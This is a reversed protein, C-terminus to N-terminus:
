QDDDDDGPARGDRGHGNGPITQPSFSFLNPDTPDVTVRVWDVDPSGFVELRTFNYIRNGGPAVVGPGTAASHAPYIDTLPKDMRVYHTDGGVLLVPKAWAVTQTRLVNIFDEYGSRLYGQNPELFREFPNAQQAIVIGKVRTDAAATAFAKKIWAINAVNRAAYEAEADAIFLGTPRLHDNNSGPQNIGVFLVAGYRWMVNEKYLEFGTDASQRTVPLKNQGLSLNSTFFLGRLFNLREVPNFGGNNARHCDTWENDGPIYIAPNRFTNFIALNNTHVDDRCLTDGAKIDGVHVTFAVAQHNNIDTIMANYEPSPYAQTKAPSAGSAPSYPVDGILAFQFPDTGGDGDGRMGLGGTALLGATVFGVALLKTSNIM